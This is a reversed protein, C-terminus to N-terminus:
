QGQTMSEGGKKLSVAQKDIHLQKCISCELRKIEEGTEGTIIVEKPAACPLVIESVGKGSDNEKGKPEPMSINSNETVNKSDQTKLGPDSKVSTLVSRLVSYNTSPEPKGNNSDTARNILGPNVKLNKNKRFKPSKKKELEDGKEVKDSYGHIIKLHWKFSRFNNMVKWCDMCRYKKSDLYESHNPLDIKLNGLDLEAEGCAGLVTIMKEELKGKKGPLSFGM